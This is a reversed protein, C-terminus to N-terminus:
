EKKIIIIIIIRLEYFLCKKKPLVWFCDHLDRVIGEGHMHEEKIKVHM